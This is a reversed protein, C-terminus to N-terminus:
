EEIEKEQLIESTIGKKEILLDYINKAQTKAALENLEPDGSMSNNPRVYFIWQHSRDESKLKVLFRMGDGDIEKLLQIKM